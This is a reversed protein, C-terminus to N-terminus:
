ANKFWSENVKSAFHGLINGFILKHKFCSIQSFIDAWFVESEFIDNCKKKGFGLNINLTM